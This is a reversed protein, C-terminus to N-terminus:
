GQGWGSGAVGEFPDSALAPLKRPQINVDDTLIVVDDLIRYTGARLGRDLHLRQGAQKGPALANLISPCLTAPERSRGLRLGRDVTQWRKETRRELTLDLCLNYGLTNDSDNTLVLSFDDGPYLRTPEVSLTVKSPEEDATEDSSSPCSTALMLVLGSVTASLRRSSPGKM